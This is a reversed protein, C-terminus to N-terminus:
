SKEKNSMYPHANLYNKKNNFAYIYLTVYLCVKNFSGQWLDTTIYRLVSTAMVRILLM